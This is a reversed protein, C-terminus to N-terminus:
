EFDSAASEMRQMHAIKAQLAAKLRTYLSTTLDILQIFRKPGLFESVIFSKALVQEMGIYTDKRVEYAKAVVEFAKCVASVCKPRLSTDLEGRLNLYKLAIEPWDLPEEEDRLMDCQQIVRPKLPVQLESDALIVVHMFKRALHFPSRLIWSNAKDAQSEENFLGWDSVDDMLMSQLTLLWNESQLQNVDILIALHEPRKATALKAVEEQILRYFHDQSPVSTPDILRVKRISCAIQVVEQAASRRGVWLFHGDEMTFSRCLAWIKTVVQPILTLGVIQALERPLQGKSPKSFCSCAAKECITASKSEIDPSTGALSRYPLMPDFYDVCLNFWDLPRRYNIRKLLVKELHSDLRAPDHLRDRYSRLVEYLAM